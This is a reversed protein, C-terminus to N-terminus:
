VREGIAVTVMVEVRHSTDSRFSTPYSDDRKASVFASAYYGAAECGLVSMLRLLAMHRM